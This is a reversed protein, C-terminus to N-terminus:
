RGEATAIETEGDAGWESWSGDYLGAPRIDLQDLALTLIAATVGSGCSTVIPRDLDVGAREFAQRIEPPSKMVGDAVVEGYPLNRSQPIHGSRVGPRPEPVEGRFRAASRADVVQFAKSALAERVEALSTVARQDPRPEFRVQPHNPVDMTVRRGEARWKPLGGNLVTAKDAGMTRFTWWVRAASFIGDADYIAIRDDAAIGMAGVAVAFDEPAPLMHPLPSTRDAIQDIDFFVAGPIHGGAYEDRGVRGANPLFWSADLIRMDPDDLHDALWSTSVLSTTSAGM